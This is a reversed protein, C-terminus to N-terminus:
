GPLGHPHRLGPCGGGAPQAERQMYLYSKWSVAVSVPQLRFGGLACGLCLTNREVQRVGLNVGPDIEGKWREAKRNDM